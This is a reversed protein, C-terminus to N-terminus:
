RWLFHNLYHAKTQHIAARNTAGDSKKKAVDDHEWIEAILKTVGPNGCGISVIALIVFM